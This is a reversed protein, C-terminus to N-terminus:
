VHTRRGASITPRLAPFYSLRGVSLAPLALCPHPHRHLRARVRLGADLDTKRSRDHRSSRTRGFSARLSSAGACRARSSAATRKRWGLAVKVDERALARSIWPSQLDPLPWETLM